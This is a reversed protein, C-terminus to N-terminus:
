SQNGMVLHYLPVPRDCYRLFPRFHKEWHSNGFHELLRLGGEEQLFMSELFPMLWDKNKKKAAEKRKKGKRLTPAWLNDKLKELERKKILQTCVQIFSTTCTSKPLIYGQGRSESSMVQPCTGETLRLFYWVQSSVAGKNTPIQLHYTM